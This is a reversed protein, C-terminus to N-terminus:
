FMIVVNFIFFLYVYFTLASISIILIIGGRRYRRKFIEVIGLVIGIFPMLSVIIDFLTIKTTQIEKALEKEEKNWEDNM